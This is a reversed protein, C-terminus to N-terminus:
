TTITRRLAETFVKEALPQMNKTVTEAIHLGPQPPIIWKSSGEMMTRFTMYSSYRKGGPTTTDMRVMSSYIDTTHFSKKKPSLGEPLRGGWSYQNQNVRLMQRQGSRAPLLFAPRTTQGTVRSPALQFAQQYISPPMNQGGEAGPVNHRFPIILFKKGRKTQRVKQSSQLMKKLDYAPRGKEIQEDYQYDSEVVASFPGTVRWTISSAYKDREGSWLKARQVAKQWNLQLQQSVGRVAQALLPLVQENVANGAAAMVGSMDVSIRFEAM